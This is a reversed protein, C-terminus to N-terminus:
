DADALIKERIKEADTIKKVESRLYNEAARFLDSYKEGEFIETTKRFQGIKEGWYRVLNEGMIELRNGWWFDPAIFSEGEATPIFISAAVQVNDSDGRPAQGIKKIEINIGTTYTFIKESIWDM